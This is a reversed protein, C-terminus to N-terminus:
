KMTLKFSPPILIAIHLHMAFNALCAPPPMCEILMSAWRCQVYTMGHLQLYQMLALLFNPAQFDTTLKSIPTAPFVRPEAALFFSGPVWDDDDELEQIQAKDDSDEVGDDGVSLHWDLYATFQDVAEQQWLWIKMQEVYDQKNM